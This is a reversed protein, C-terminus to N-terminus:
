FARSLRAGLFRGHPDFGYAAGSSEDLRPQLGCLFGVSGTLGDRAFQHDLSTRAVGAQRMAAAQAYTMALPTRPAALDIAPAMAAEARYAPLPPAAGQAKAEGAAVTAALILACRLTRRSISTGFAAPRSTLRHLIM